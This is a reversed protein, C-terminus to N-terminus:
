YTIEHTCIYILTCHFPGDNPLVVERYLGSPCTVICTNKSTYLFVWGLGCNVYLHMYISLNRQVQKNFLTSHDEQLLISQQEENDTRGDGDGSDIMEENETPQLTATTTMTVEGQTQHDM